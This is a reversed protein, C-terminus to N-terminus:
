EILVLLSNHIIFFLYRCTYLHVFLSTDLLVRINRIGDLIQQRQQTGNPLFHWTITGVPNSSSSSCNVSQMSGERVNTMSLHEISMEEPPVVDCPFIDTPIGLM